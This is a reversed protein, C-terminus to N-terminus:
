KVIFGQFASVVYEDQHSGLVRSGPRSHIRRKLDTLPVLPRCVISQVSCRWFMGVLWFQRTVTDAWCSRVLRVINDHM